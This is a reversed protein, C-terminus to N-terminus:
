KIYRGKLSVHKKTIYHDIYRLAGEAVFAVGMANGLQSFVKGNWGHLYALVPITLAPM